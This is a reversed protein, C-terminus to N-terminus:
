PTKKVNRRFANGNLFTHVRHGNYQLEGYKRFLDADELTDKDVKDAKELPPAMVYAEGYLPDDAPYLFYLKGDIEKKDAEKVIVVWHDLSSTPPFSLTVGAMVTNGDKFYDAPIKGQSLEKSSEVWNEAAGAAYAKGSAPVHAKMFEYGKKASQANFTALIKPMHQMIQKVTFSGKDAGRLTAETFTVKGVSTDSKPPRSTGQLAETILDVPKAGSQTKGAVQIDDTKPDSHKDSKPNLPTFAYEFEERTMDPPVLGYSQLMFMVSTGYCTIGYTSLVQEPRTIKETSGADDKVGYGQSEHSQRQVPSAAMGGPSAARTTQPYSALLEHATGPSTVRQAVADAHREYRDGEQGMGAPLDVGARQQVIHTLEHALLRQGPASRPQYLGPGFVINDGATYARANLSQASKAASEDTHMRVQSFDHGLRSEMIERAAPELPQGSSSPVQHAESQTKAPAERQQSQLRRLVAGNGIARQLQLISHLQPVPSYAGRSPQEPTNLMGADNRKKALKRM